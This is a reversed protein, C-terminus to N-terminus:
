TGQNEDEACPDIGDDVEVEESLGALPISLLQAMLCRWEPTSEGTAFEASVALAKIVKPLRQEKGM